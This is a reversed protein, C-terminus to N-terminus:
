GVAFVLVNAIESIMYGLIVLILLARENNWRFTPERGLCSSLKLYDILELNFKIKYANCLWVLM